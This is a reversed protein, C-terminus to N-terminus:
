EKKRKPGHWSLDVDLHKKYLRKSKAKGGFGKLQSVEFEDKM